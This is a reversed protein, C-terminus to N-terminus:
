LISLFFGCLTSCEINRKTFRTKRMNMDKSTIRLTQVIKIAPNDYHRNLYGDCSACLIESDFIGNPYKQTRHSVTIIANPLGSSSQISRGFWQPIIHAKILDTSQCDPGRCPSPLMLRGLEGRDAGLTTCDVEICQTEGDTPLDPLLRM